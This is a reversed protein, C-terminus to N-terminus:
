TEPNLHCVADDCPCADNVEFAYLIRHCRDELVPNLPEQLLSAENLIAPGPIRELGQTLLVGSRTELIEADEGNTVVFLPASMLLAAARAPTRRTVLSGPGYRILLSAKGKPQVLFDLRIEARKTDCKLVLPINSTIEEADYGLTLLLAAIKQRYRNDHTDAIITGSLIDQMQGLILHHGGM